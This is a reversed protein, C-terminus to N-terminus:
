GVNQMNDGLMPDLEQPIPLEPEVSAEEPPFKLIPAIAGTISIMTYAILFGLYTWSSTAVSTAINSNLNILRGTPSVLTFATDSSIGKQQHNDAVFEGSVDVSSNEANPTQFAYRSPDGLTAQYAATLGTYLNEDLSNNVKNVVWKALLSGLPRAVDSGTFINHETQEAQSRSLTFRQKGFTIEAFQGYISILLIYDPAM